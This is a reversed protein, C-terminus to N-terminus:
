LRAVPAFGLGSGAACRCREIIVDRVLNALLETTIVSAFNLHVKWPTRMSILYNPLQKLKFQQAVTEQVIQLVPSLTRLVLQQDVEWDFDLEVFYRYPSNQYAETLFMMYGSVFAKYYQQLFKNYQQPPVFYKGKHPDGLGFFSNINFTKGPPAPYNELFAPRETLIKSRPWRHISRPRWAPTGDGTSSSAQRSSMRREVHQDQGSAHASPADMHQMSGDKQSGGHLQGAAAQADSADSQLESARRM